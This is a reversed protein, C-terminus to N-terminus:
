PKVAAPNPKAESAASVVTAAVPDPSNSVNFQKSVILGIGTANAILFILWEHWTAPVGHQTIAADIFNGLNGILVVIGLVTNMWSKGM